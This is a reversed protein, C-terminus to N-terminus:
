PQSLGAPLSQRAPVAVIRVKAHRAARGAKALTIRQPWRPDRFALHREDLAAVAASVASPTMLLGSALDFTWAEGDTALVQWISAEAPTLALAQPSVGALSATKATAQQWLHQVTPM